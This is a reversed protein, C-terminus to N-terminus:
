VTLTAERRSAANDAAALEALLAEMAEKRAVKLRHVLEQHSLYDWQESYRQQSVENSIAAAKYYIFHDLEGSRSLREFLDPMNTKLMERLSKEVVSEM